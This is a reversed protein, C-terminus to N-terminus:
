KNGERTKADEKAQKMWEKYGAIEKQMQKDFAKLQKLNTRHPYGNFTYHMREYFNTFDPGSKEADPINRIVQKLNIFKLSANKDNPM